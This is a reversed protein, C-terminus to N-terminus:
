CLNALNHRGSAFRALKCLNSAGVALVLRLRVM